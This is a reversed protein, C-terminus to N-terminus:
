FAPNASENKLREVAERNQQLLRECEEPSGANIITTTEKFDTKYM